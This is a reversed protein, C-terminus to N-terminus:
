ISGISELYKRSKEPYVLHDGDVTVMRIYPPKKPNILEHMKREFENEFPTNPGSHPYCTIRKLEHPPFQDSTIRMKNKANEWLEDYEKNSIIKVDM